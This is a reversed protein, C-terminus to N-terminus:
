KESKPYELPPTLCQRSMQLELISRFKTFTNDVVWLWAFYKEETVYLDYRLQSMFEMEALNIEILPIKSLKHWTKNSYTNDVLYKM